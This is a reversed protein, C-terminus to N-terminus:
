SSRRSNRVAPSVKDEIVHRATADRTAALARATYGLVLQAQAQAKAVEARSPGRDPSNVLYLTGAGLITVAVAAAAARVLSTRSRPARVTRHWVADLAAPPLPVRPLERLDLQLHELDELLEACANCVKLHDVLEGQLPAPTDADLAEHILDRARDCSM